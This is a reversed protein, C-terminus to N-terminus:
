EGAFRDCVLRKFLSVSIITTSHLRKATGPEAFDKDGTVLFDAHAMLACALFMADKQDRPFDVPVEPARIEIARDFFALWRALLEPPLGFKPRALVSRYEAVIEPTAVWRVGPTEAVFLVVREPDRDRLAASVLVNTDIVVRM